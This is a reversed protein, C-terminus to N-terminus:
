VRVTNREIEECLNCREFHSFIEKHKARKPVTKSERSSVCVLRIHSETKARRVLGFARQKKKKKQKLVGYPRIAEAEKKEKEETHGVRKAVSRM